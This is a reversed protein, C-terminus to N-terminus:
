IKPTTGDFVKKSAIPANKDGMDPQERRKKNEIQVDNLVEQKSLKAMDNAYYVLYSAMIVIIVPSLYEIAIGMFFPLNETNFFSTGLVLLLFVMTVIFTDNFRFKNRYMNYKDTGAITKAYENITFGSFVFALILLIGKLLNFLEVLNMTMGSSMNTFICKIIDLMQNGGYRGTNYIKDCDGWMYSRIMSIFSVLPYLMLLTVILKSLWYSETTNTFDLLEFVKKHLGSLNKPNASVGSLTFMLVFAIVTILGNQLGLSFFTEDPWVGRFMNGSFVVVLMVISYVMGIISLNTYRGDVNETNRLKATTGILFLSCIGIFIDFLPIQTTTYLNNFFAFPGPEAPPTVFKFGPPLISNFGYMVMPSVYLLMIGMLVYFLNRFHYKFESPFNPVKLKDITQNTPTIIHFITIILGFVVMSFLFHGYKSVEDPIDKLINFISSSMEEPTLMLRFSLLTIFVIISVFLAKITNLEVRYEPSLMIPNGKAGFKYHLNGLTMMLLVSSTFNLVLVVVVIFAILMVWSQSNSAHETMFASLDMGIMASYMVNVVFFLALGLFELSKSFMLTFCIIFLALLFIYKM